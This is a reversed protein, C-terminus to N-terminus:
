LCSLVPLSTDASVFKWWAHVAQYGVCGTKLINSVQEAAMHGM